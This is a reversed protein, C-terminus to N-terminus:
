TLKELDESEKMHMEISLGILGSLTQCLKCSFIHKQIKIGADSDRTKGMHELFKDINSFPDENM